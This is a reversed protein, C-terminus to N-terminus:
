TQTVGKLITRGHRFPYYINPRGFYKRDFAQESVKKLNSAQSQLKMEFMTQSRGAQYSLLFLFLVYWIGYGQFDFVNTLSNGKLWTVGSTAWEITNDKILALKANVTSLRVMADSSGLEPFSIKTNTLTVSKDSFWDGISQLKDSVRVSKVTDVTSDAQNSLWDSIGQSSKSSEKSIKTVFDQVKESSLKSSEAAKLKLNSMVEANDIDLLPVSKSDPIASKVGDQVSDPIDPKKSNGYASLLDFNEGGDAGAALEFTNQFDRNRFM